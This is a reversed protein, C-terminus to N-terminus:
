KAEADQGVEKQSIIRQQLTLCFAHIVRRIQRSEIIGNGLILSLSREDDDDFHFCWVWTEEELMTMRFAVLHRGPYPNNYHAQEQEDKVAVVAAFHADADLDLNRHKGSTGKDLILELTNETKRYLSFGSIFDLDSLDLRNNVYRFLNENVKKIIGVLYSIANESKVLEDELHEIASEQEDITKKLDAISSQLFEHQSQSYAVVYAVSSPDHNNQSFVTNVIDYLGEFTFDNKNVFQAWTMEYEEPRRTKFAEVHFDPHGITAMKGIYVQVYIIYFASALTIAGAVSLWIPWPGYNGALIGAVTPGIIPLSAWQIGKILKVHKFYSGFTKLPGLWAKGRWHQGNQSRMKSIVPDMNFKIENLYSHYNAKIQKVVM